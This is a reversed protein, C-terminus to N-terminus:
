CEQSTHLTQTSSSAGQLVSMTYCAQLRLVQSYILLILLEICVESIKEPTTRRFLITRYYKSQQCFETNRYYKYYVINKSLLSGLKKSDGRM